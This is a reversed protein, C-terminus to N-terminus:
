RYVCRSSWAARNGSAAAAQVDQDQRHRQDSQGRARGAERGCRSAAGEGARHSSRVSASIIPSGKRTSDAVPGNIWFHYAHVSPGRTWRGTKRNASSCGRFSRLAGRTGRGRLFGVQGERLLAGPPGDAENTNPTSIATQPRTTRLSRSSPGVGSRPSEPVAGTGTSGTGTPRERTGAGRESMSATVACREVSTAAIGSSQTRGSAM